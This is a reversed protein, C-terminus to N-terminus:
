FSVTVTLVTRAGAIRDGFLWRGRSDTTFRDLEFSLRQLQVTLGASGYAYDSRGAADLKSYGVGAAGTIWSTLPLQMALEADFAARKHAGGTRARWTSAPTVAVSAFLRERWAAGASFEVYDYGVPSADHLYTYAVAKFDAVWDTGIRRGFGATLDLEVSSRPTLDPQYAGAPGAYANVTRIRSAWVGAYVGTPHWYFASAQPAPTGDSQSIGRHTYDSTLALSARLGDAARACAPVVALLLLYSALRAGQQLVQVSGSM